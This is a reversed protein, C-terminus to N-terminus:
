GRGLAGTESPDHAAGIAGDQDRSVRAGQDAAAAVSPVTQATLRSFPSLM